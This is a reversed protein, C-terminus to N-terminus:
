APTDASSVPDPEVPLGAPCPELGPSTPAPKDSMARSDTGPEPAPDGMARELAKSAACSMCSTAHMAVHVTADQIKDMALAVNQVTDGFTNVTLQVIAPIASEMAKVVAAEIKAQSEPSLEM